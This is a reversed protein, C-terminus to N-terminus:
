IERGVLARLASAAPAASASPNSAYERIMPHSEGWFLAYPSRLAEELASPEAVRNEVSLAKALLLGAQLLSEREEELLGGGGLLAAMKLKRSAQRRYEQVVQREAETLKSASEEGTTGLERIARTSPSISAIVRSAGSPYM